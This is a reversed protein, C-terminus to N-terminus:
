AHICMWQLPAVALRQRAIHALVGLNRIDGEPTVLRPNVSSPLYRLQGAYQKWDSVFRVPFLNILLHIAERVVFVLTIGLLVTSQKFRFFVVYM